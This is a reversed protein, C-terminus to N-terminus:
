NNSIMAIELKKGAAHYDFFEYATNRSASALKGRLNADQILQKLATSLSEVSGAEILFGNVGNIIYKPIDGVSSVVVAKEMALYEALKTPAGAENTIHPIRPLTLIDCASMADIVDNASLLGVFDVYEKLALEVIIEEVNDCDLGLTSSGAIIIKFQIQQNVLERAALLLNKVGNISFLSGTYGILLKDGLRYKDRFIRGKISNYKFKDLDVLPPVIHTPVRPAFKMARQQLYYTDVINLDSMKPLLYDAFEIWALRVKDEFTPSAPHFRVDGCINAVKCGKKNGSLLIPLGELGLNYLYLWDFQNERKNHNIYQWTKYRAIFRSIQINKGLGSYQWIVKINKYNIKLEGETIKRPIIVTVDHGNEILALAFMEVRRSTSFPGPFDDLHAIICIKM